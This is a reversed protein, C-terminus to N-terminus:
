ADDAAAASAEPANEDTLQAQQEEEEKKQREEEEKKKAEAVLWEERSAFGEQKAIFEQNFRLRWDPDEEQRKRAEYTASGPPADSFFDIVDSTDAGCAGRLPNEGFMKKDSQLWDAYVIKKREAEREEPDMEALREARPISESYLSM